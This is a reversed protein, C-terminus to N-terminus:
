QIIGLQEPTWAIDLAAACLRDPGIIGFLDERLSDFWAVPIYKDRQPTVFCQARIYVEWHLTVTIYYLLTVQWPEGPAAGQVVDWLPTFAVQRRPDVFGQRLQDPWSGYPFRAGKTQDVSPTLPVPIPNRAM